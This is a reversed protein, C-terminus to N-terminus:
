GKRLRWGEHELLERLRICKIGYRDCADPIRIKGKLSKTRKEHCVVVVRGSDFSGGLIKNESMALAVVWPDSLDKKSGTDFLWQGDRRLDALLEKLADELEETFSRIIRKNKDLWAKTDPNGECDTAVQEPMILRDVSALVSLPEWIDPVDRLVRETDVMASSDVCYAVDFLKSM